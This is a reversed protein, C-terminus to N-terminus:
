GGIKADLKERLEQLGDAEMIRTKGYGDQQVVYFKRDPQAM